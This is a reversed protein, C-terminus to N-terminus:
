SPRANNLREIFGTEEVENMIRPQLESDYITGFRRTQLLKGNWFYHVLGLSKTTDPWWIQDFLLNGLGYYIEGNNYKEYTQTQHASTGVVVDAGMDILSRFLGIQDGATSNAYDCRTDESMNAYESCEYYQVDVIVLDGASKAEIIRDRADQEDYPNAGPIDGSTAGGTSENYGLMTLSVGDIHTESSTIRLPQRADNLDKGGGFYRIGNEQLKDITSIADEAGCDLNHNGTLEVIDLSLDLFTDLFAPRSCINGSTASESFSSESSTHRLNFKQFFDRLGASFYTADDVASLKANMGRALATVGSQLLSLTSDKNPLEAALNSFKPELASTVKQADEENEGDINLYKFKAGHAFDDLFYEEGVALLKVSSDLNKVSIISEDGSSFLKDFEEPSIRNKSDYFDTTPVYIDTLFGKEQRSDIESYSVTVNSSLKLGTMLERLEGAENEPVNEAFIVEGKGGLIDTLGGGLCFKVLFFSVVGTVVFCVAGALLKKKM